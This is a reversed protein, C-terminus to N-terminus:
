PAPARRIFAVLKAIGRLNHSAPTVSGGLSTQRNKKIKEGSKGSKGGAPHAGCELMMEYTFQTKM